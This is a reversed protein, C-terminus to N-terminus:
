LEEKDWLQRGTAMNEKSEKVSVKEYPKTICINAMKEGGLKEEVM